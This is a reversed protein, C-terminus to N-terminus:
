KEYPMVEGTQPHVAYHESDYGYKKGLEDMYERVRNWAQSAWDKGDLGEQVSMAIVPTNQATKYLDLLHLREEDTVKILPTTM